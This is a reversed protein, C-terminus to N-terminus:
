CGETAESGVACSVQARSRGPPSRCLKPPQSATRDHWPPRPHGLDGLAELQRVLNCTKRSNSIQTDYRDVLMLEPPRGSCVEPGAAGLSPASNLLVSRTCPLLLSGSYGVAGGRQSAVWASQWAAAALRHWIDALM